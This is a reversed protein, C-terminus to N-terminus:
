KFSLAREVPTVIETIRVGYYGDVVVVEGRALSQGNVLLEVPEDVGRNLEIMTGPGMRVVDRLPMNTIGFRVVVELEVDLLREINRPATSERATAFVSSPPAVDNSPTLPSASAAAAASYNPVSATLSGNPAYFVLAQTDMEDGVTLSLTHLWIQDGVMAALRLPNNSLDLHAVEGFTIPQPASASLQTATSTLTAHILAIQSSLTGGQTSAPLMSQLMQSDEPRFLCTLVGSLAGTCTVAFASPWEAAGAVASGVGDGTVERSSLAALTSPRGLLSPAAESWASMFATILQKELSESM